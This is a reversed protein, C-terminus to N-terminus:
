FKLLHHSEQGDNFGSKGGKDEKIQKLISDNKKRTTMKIEPRSQQVLKTEM